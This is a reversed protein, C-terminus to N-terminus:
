RNSTLHEVLYDPGVEDYMARTVGAATYADGGRSAWLAGGRWADRLPDAATTVGAVLDAGWAAPLRCRMDTVLRRAYGPLLAPGGTLFLTGAARGVGDLSGGYLGVARPPALALAAAEAIGCQDVGLLPPRFLVEPARLRDVSLRLEGAPSPAYLTRAGTPPRLDDPAAAAAHTSPLEGTSVMDALETALESLRANAAAAAAAAAASSGASTLQQYVDWDEDNAGFTDDADDGGATAPAGAGGSGGAM